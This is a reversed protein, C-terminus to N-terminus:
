PGQLGLVNFDGKPYPGCLKANRPCTQKKSPNGAGQPFVVRVMPEQWLYDFPHVGNIQVTDLGEDYTEPAISVTVNDTVGFLFEHDVTATVEQFRVRSGLYLIDEQGWEKWAAQNVHAQLNYFTQRLGATVQAKDAYEKSVRLAGTGRYVDIGEVDGNESAGILLSVANQGDGVEDIHNWELVPDFAAGQPAAVIHTQQATMAWEWIEGYENQAQPDDKNDEPPGYNLTVRVRKETDGMSEASSSLLQIGFISPHPTGVIPVEDAVAEVDGSVYSRVEKWTAGNKDRGLSQGVLLVIYDIAM